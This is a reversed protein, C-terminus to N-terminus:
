EHDNREKAKWDKLVDSRDQKVEQLRKQLTDQFSSSQQTSTSDKRARARQFIEMLYPVAKGSINTEEHIATLEEIEKPDTIEKLLTINEGIGVIYLSNGIQMLQISKGQGVGMGGLNQVLRNQQFTRNKSNLFRLVAFLLGIVLLLAFIMKIYDWATVSVGASDSIPESDLPTGGETEAESDQTSGDQETEEESDEKSPKYNDKVYEHQNVAANAEIPNPLFLICTIFCCLLLSYYKM